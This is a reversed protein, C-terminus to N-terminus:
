KGTPRTLEFLSAPSVTTYYDAGLRGILEIRSNDPLGDTLLDGSVEVRVIEGIIWNSALAGDGHAVKKFLKCEIHIPSEAVAPPNVLVSAKRSFGSRDFEDVDAPYEFSTQNMKEAMDRTCVNIVYEGTATINRVTDKAKGHRNNVPCIVCSAPNSGGVTFYSFPALNGGGDAALSSVLAIPRPAIIRTLLKYTDVVSLEDFAFEAM